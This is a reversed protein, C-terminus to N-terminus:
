GVLLTVAAAIGILAFVVSLIMYARKETKLERIEREQERIMRKQSRIVRAAEEAMMDIAQDFETM